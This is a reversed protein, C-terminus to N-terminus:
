ILQLPHAYWHELGLRRHEFLFGCRLHQYRREVIAWLARGDPPMHPDVAVPRIHQLVPAARGCEASSPSSFSSCSRRTSAPIGIVVNLTSASQKATFLAAYSSCARAISCPAPQNLRQPEATSRVAVQRTSPTFGAAPCLLLNALPRTVLDNLDEGLFAAASVPVALQQQLHALAQHKDGVGVLCHEIELHQARQEIAVSRGGSLLYDRVDFRNSVEGTETYHLGGDTLV